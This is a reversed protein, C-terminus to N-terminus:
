SESLKSKFPWPHYELKGDRNDDTSSGVEYDSSANDLIQKLLKQQQKRRFADIGYDIKSDIRSQLNILLKTLYLHDALMQQKQVLESIESDHNQPTASEDHNLYMAEVTFSSHLQVILLLVTCVAATPHSFSRM